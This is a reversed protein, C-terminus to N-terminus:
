FLRELRDTLVRIDHHKKVHEQGNRGMQIREEPKMALLIKIAQALAEPNEPPVTVGAEAEEVPNNRSNAAFLIPRGSVLYDCLKNMSIGYKYLPIDRLCLVFADAEGMVKAIENKPVAARFEVNQLQWVESLEILNRKESGDGVFVFRINSMGEDQTIRAAKLVVDLANAMTHGGLYMITFMRANGGDYEALGEYRSFDICQPICVIKDGPIGFSTIYRDAYPLSVIIREAKRYLFKELIRLGWVIPNRESLAGMDVITQPWLDTIEFFFRSKKLRSLLYASLAALPHVSTGIILDPKEELSKGIWFARCAYSLMNLVRRWDNRRYPFTRIWTFHIGDYSETKCKEGQKLRMEIFKYESFSSAFITVNHGRKVLEKSIDFPRTAQTTEPTGAYHNLIWINM